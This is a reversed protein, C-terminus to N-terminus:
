IYVFQIETAGGKFALKLVEDLKKNKYFWEGKVIGDTFTVFWVDEKPSYYVYFMKHEIGKSNRSTLLSSFWDLIKKIKNKM